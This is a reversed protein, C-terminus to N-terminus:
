CALNWHSWYLKRWLMSHISEMVVCLSSLYETWSSSHWCSDILYIFTLIQYRIGTNINTSLTYESSSKHIATRSFRPQSEARRVSQLFTIDKTATEFPRFYRQNKNRTGTRLSRTTTKQLVDGKNYHAVKKTTCGGGAGFMKHLTSACYVFFHLM